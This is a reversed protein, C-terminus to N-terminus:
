RESEYFVVLEESDSQAPNIYNHKMRGLHSADRQPRTILSDCRDRLSEAKRM